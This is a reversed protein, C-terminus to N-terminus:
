RRRVLPFREELEQRRRRQWKLHKWHWMMPIGLPIVVFVLLVAAIAAIM